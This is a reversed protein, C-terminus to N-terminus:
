ASRLTEAHGCIMRKSMTHRAIPHYITQTTSRRLQGPGGQQPTKGRGSTRAGTRCPSAKGWRMKRSFASASSSFAEMRM